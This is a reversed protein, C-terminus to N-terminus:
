FPHSRFSLLVAFMSLFWFSLTGSRSVMVLSLQCSLRPYFAHKLVSPQGYGIHSDDIDYDDFWSYGDSGGEAWIMALMASGFVGHFHGFVFWATHLEIYLRM